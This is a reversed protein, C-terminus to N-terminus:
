ATRDLQTGFQTPKKIKSHSKQNQPQDPEEIVTVMPRHDSAQGWPTVGFQGPVYASVVAKLMGKSVFMYDLKSHGFRQGGDHTPESKGDKLMTEILDNDPNNDNIMTLAEIVPKGHISHHHMNLDGTMIIHANPNQQLKRDIIRATNTAERIRISATKDEGGRMSKYHATYVTFQYGTPTEFTAELLDRGFGNGSGTNQEQWHSQANILKLDNKAMIAVRIGRGAQPITLQVINGYQNNLYKKNFTNLLQQGGIEQFAVVDPNERLVADAVAQISKLSKSSFKGKGEIFNEVNYTMIKRQAGAFYLSHVQPTKAFRDITIKIDHSTAPQKKAAKHLGLPQFGQPIKM